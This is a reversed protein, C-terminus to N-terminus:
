ANNAYAGFRQEFVLIWGQDYNARTREAAAGLAQWGDHLLAV